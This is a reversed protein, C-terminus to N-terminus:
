ACYRLRRNAGGLTSPGSGSIASFNLALTCAIAAIAMAARSLFSRWFTRRKENKESQEALDAVVYAPDMQLTIAVRYAVDLPIPREGSRMMALHGTRVELRKALEYDSTIGLQAKAADLYASPKM